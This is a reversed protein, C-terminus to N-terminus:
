PYARSFRRAHAPNAHAAPILVAAPAHLLDRPVRQFRGPSFAADRLRLMRRTAILLAPVLLERQAKSLEPGIARAKELGHDPRPAVAFIFRV